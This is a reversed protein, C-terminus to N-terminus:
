GVSRTTGLTWEELLPGWIGEDETWDVSKIVNESINAYIAETLLCHLMLSVVIFIVLKM